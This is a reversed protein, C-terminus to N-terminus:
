GFSLSPSSAEEFTDAGSRLIDSAIHRWFCHERSADTAAIHLQCCLPRRLPYSNSQAIHVWIATANPVCYTAWLALMRSSVRNPVSWEAGYGHMRPALEGVNSCSLRM